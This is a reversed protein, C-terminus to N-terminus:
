VYVACCFLSFSFFCSYVQIFYCIPTCNLNLHKGNMRLRRGEMSNGRPPCLLKKFWKGNEMKWKISIKIEIQLCKKPICMCIYYKGNTVAICTFGNSMEICWLKRICVLPRCFDHLAMALPYLAAHPLYVPRRYAFFLHMIFKIQHRSLCKVM